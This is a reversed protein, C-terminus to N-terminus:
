VDSERIVLSTQQANGLRIDNLTAVAIQTAQDWTIRHNQKRAALKAQRTVGKLLRKDYGYYKNTKNNDDYRAKVYNMAEEGDDPNFCKILYPILTVIISIVTVPDIMITSGLANSIITARAVTQPGSM